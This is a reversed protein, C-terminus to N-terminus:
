PIGVFLSQVVRVVANVDSVTPIGCFDTKAGIVGHSRGLGVGRDRASEALPEGNREIEELHQRVVAREGPRALQYTTM